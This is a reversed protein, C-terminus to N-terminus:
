SSSAMSTMVVKMRAAEYSCGSPGPCRSSPLHGRWHEDDAMARERLARYREDRELQKRQREEVEPDVEAPRAVSDRWRAVPRGNSAIGDRGLPM